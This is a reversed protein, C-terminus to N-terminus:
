FHDKFNIATDKRLSNIEYFGIIVSSYFLHRLKNYISQEVKNKGKFKLALSFIPYKNKGWKWTLPIIFLCYNMLSFRTSYRRHKIFLIEM